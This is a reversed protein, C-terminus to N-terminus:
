NIIEGKQQALRQRMKAIEEPSPGKWGHVEGTIQLPAQSRYSRTPNGPFRKNTVNPDDEFAGTPEVLYVRPPAEGQSFAAALEAGNSLATFYIHNMTLEPQYNSQKGAVLLDGVALDARTGHYFPGPDLPAQPRSDVLARCRDAADRDGLQEHRQAIEEYLFPVAAQTAAQDLRLALQLAAELWELQQGADAKGRAVHYAALLREHDDSAEDWAQQFLARGEEPQGSEEQRMGQLCLRVIQNNPGFQM